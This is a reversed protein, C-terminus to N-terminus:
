CYYCPSVLLAATRLNYRTTKHFFFFVQHFDLSKLFFINVLIKKQFNREREREREREKKKEDAQGDKKREATEWREMGTERSEMMGVGRRENETAEHWTGTSDDAGAACNQTRGHARTERSLM